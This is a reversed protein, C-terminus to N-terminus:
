DISLILLWVICQSRKCLAKCEDAQWAWRLYYVLSSISQSKCMPNSNHQIECFSWLNALRWSCAKSGVFVESQVERFVSVFSISGDLSSGRNRGRQMAGSQLEMPRADGWQKNRCALCSEYNASNDSQQKYNCAKGSIHLEASLTLWKRSNDRPSALLNLDQRQMPSLQTLKFWPLSWYLVYQTNQVQSKLTRMCALGSIHKQLNEGWAQEWVLVVTLLHLQKLSDENLGGQMQSIRESYSETSYQYAWIKSYWKRKWLITDM